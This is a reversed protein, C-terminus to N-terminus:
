VTRAESEKWETLESQELYNILRDTAVQAKRLQARDDAEIMWGWAMREADSNIKVKRGNDSHSVMNSQMYRFGAMIAIPLQVHKVLDPQDPTPTGETPLIYSAQAKDY